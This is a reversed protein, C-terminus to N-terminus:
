KESLAQCRRVEREEVAVNYLKAHFRYRNFEPNTTYKNSIYEDWKRCVPAMCALDKRSVQELIEKEMEEFLVPQIDRNPLCFLGIISNCLTTM